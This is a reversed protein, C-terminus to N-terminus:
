KWTLYARDLVRQTRPTSGRPRKFVMALAAAREVMEANLVEDSQDQFPNSHTQCWPVFRVVCPTAQLAPKLKKLFDTKTVGTLPTDAVKLKQEIFENVLASLETAMVEETAEKVQPPHYELLDGDPLLVNALGMLFALFGGVREPTYFTSEKIQEPHRLREETGRPASKFSVPWRVALTRRTIGGDMSSYNIKVNSCVALVGPIKFMVNSMYLDRGVWTTARDSLLKLWISRITSQKEVEPTGLLRCGKLAFLQPSASGAEPPPKELMGMALTSAYSGFINECLAWLFGKGNEGNAGNDVIYHESLGLLAALVVTLRFICVLWGGDEEGNARDPTFSLHLMKIIEFEPQEVFANLDTIL